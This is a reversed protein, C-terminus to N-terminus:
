IGNFELKALKKLLQIYAETSETPKSARTQYLIMQSEAAPEPKM